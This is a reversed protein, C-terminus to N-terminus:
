NPSPMPSPMPSPPLPWTQPDPWSTPLMASRCPLLWRRSARQQSFIGSHSFLHCWRASPLFLTLSPGDQERGLFWSLQPSPNAWWGEQKMCGRSSTDGPSGGTHCVLCAPQGQAQCLSSPWLHRTPPHANIQPKSLVSASNGNALLLLPVSTAWLTQETPPLYSAM